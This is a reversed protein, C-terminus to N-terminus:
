LAFLITRGITGYQYFWSRKRQSILKLRYFNNKVNMKEISACYQKGTQTLSIKCM